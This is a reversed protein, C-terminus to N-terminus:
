KQIQEGTMGFRRERKQFNRIALYLDDKEFDPWFKEIFYFETYACQWLLFNSLRCEGSTRILLDPDPIGDTTLYKSFKEDDLAELDQLIGRKYDEAMKCAAERIEWRAGYSLALVLTVGSNNATHAILGDLKGRVVEPLDNLNGIAKVRVQQRMLDDTERIIADVMLGMLADIEAKPRNWNEISFTYLTLYKLGIEGSAEVIKKVTDVGKKHGHVRDLGQQKAWRGNGDMIIAVHTPLNDAELIGEKIMISDKIVQKMGPM